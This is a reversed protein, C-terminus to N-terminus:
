VYINKSAYNMGCFYGVKKLRLLTPVKMYKELFEPKREYDLKELYYELLPM